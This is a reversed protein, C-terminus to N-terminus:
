YFLGKKSVPINKNNILLKKVGVVHGKFLVRPKYSCQNNKPLSFFVNQENLATEKTAKKEIPQAKTKNNVAKLPLKGVKYYIKKIKAKIKGDKSKAIFKFIHDENGNILFQKAEFSGDKNIQITKKNLLLEKSNLVKGKFIVVPSHSIINDSVPLSFIISPITTEIKTPAKAKKFRFAHSKTPSLSLITILLFAAVATFKITKKM